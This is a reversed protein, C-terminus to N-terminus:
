GGIAHTVADVTRGACSAAPLARGAARHPGAGPDIARGAGAMWRAHARAYATLCPEAGLDRAAKVDARGYTRRATVVDALLAKEAGSPGTPEAPAPVPRPVERVMLKATRSKAAAHPHKRGGTKHRVRPAQARFSFSGAGPKLVVTRRAKVTRTAVTRW